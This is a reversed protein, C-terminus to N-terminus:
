KVSMITANDERTCEKTLLSRLCLKILM